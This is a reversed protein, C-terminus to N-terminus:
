STVGSILLADYKVAIRSSGGDTQANVIMDQRGDFKSFIPFVVTQNQITLDMATVFVNENKRIKATVQIPRPGTAIAVFDILIVSANLPVTFNGMGSRNVGPDIQALLPSGADQSNFTIEGVAGASSGASYVESTNVRLFPNITFVPNTGDLEVIESQIQYTSSLGQILVSRAGSGAATDAADSSVIELPTAVDPFQYIGPGNWITKPIDSADATTYRNFIRSNANLGALTALIPADRYTASM